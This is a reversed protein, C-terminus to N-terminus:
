NIHREGWWPLLLYYGWMFTEAKKFRDLARETDNM